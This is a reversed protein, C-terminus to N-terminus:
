MDGDKAKDKSFIDILVRSGFICALSLVLIGISIASGYGMKHIVFSTKYGYLALVNTATGPGGMTMLYIHDFAKMNGAICLTLAVLVTDKILPLTIYIGRQWANAGDIEAGEIISTDIGSIASVFILM